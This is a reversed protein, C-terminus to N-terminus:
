NIKVTSGKIKNAYAARTTVEIGKIVVEGNSKLKIQSKGCKLDLSNKASLSIDGKKDKVSLDTSESWISEKLIGIIIPKNSENNEFIVLANQNIVNESPDIQIITQAILTEGNPYRLIPRGKEDIDSLQMVTPTSSIAAIQVASNSLPLETIKM